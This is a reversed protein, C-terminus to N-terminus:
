CGSARQLTTARTTARRSRRCTWSRPAHREGRAYFLTQSYFRDQHRAVGEMAVDPTNIASASDPDSPSATARDLGCTSNMYLGPRQARLSDYITRQPFTVKQDGCKDYLTNAQM